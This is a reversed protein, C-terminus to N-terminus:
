TDESLAARAIEVAEGDTFLWGSASMEIAQGAIKRLAAKLRANDARAEDGAFAEADAAQKYEALEAELEMVRSNFHREWEDVSAHSKTLEAEAAKRLDIQALYACANVKEREVAEALEQELAALAALAGGRYERSVGQTYTDGTETMELASRIHAAHDTM